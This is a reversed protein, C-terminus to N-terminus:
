ACSVFLNGGKKHLVVWDIPSADLVSEFGSINSKEDSILVQGGSAVHALLTTLVAIQEPQELMHLTRDILIVDFEGDPTYKRIDAVLGKIPLGDKAAMQNLAAIGHPSMDVGVVTHGLKAIFIADRGQGCGVDLVRLEAKELSEFHDVFIKTPDGLAWPTTEYLEDYNYAM